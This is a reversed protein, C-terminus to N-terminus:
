HQSNPVQEDKGEIVSEYAKLYEHAVNEWRYRKAIKKGKEGYADRISRDNLMDLAQKLSNIDNPKVLLGFDKVVDRVGPLDSAIVACSSAAAELTVLGFAENESVSPLVLVDSSLYFKRLEEDGVSRHFKVKELELKKAL